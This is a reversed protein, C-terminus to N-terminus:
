NNLEEDVLKTYEEPSLLQSTETNEPRIYIEEVFNNRKLHLKVLKTGINALNVELDKNFWHQYFNAIIVFFRYSDEGKTARFFLKTEDGSPKELERKKYIKYGNYEDVLDLKIKSDTSM